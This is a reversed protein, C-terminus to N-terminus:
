QLNEGHQQIVAEAQKATTVNGSAVAIMVPHLFRLEDIVASLDHSFVSDDTASLYEDVFMCRRLSVLLEQDNAVMPYVTSFLLYQSLLSCCREILEQGRLRFDIPSGDPHSFFAVVAVTPHDAETLENEVPIIQIYIQGDEDQFYCDIRDSEKTFSIEGFGEQIKRAIHQLVTTM